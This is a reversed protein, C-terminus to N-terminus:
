PLTENGAGSVPRVTVHVDVSRPSDEPLRLSGPLILTREVTTETRISDLVVPATVLQERDNGEPILTTISDPTTTVDTLQLSDPVSGDTQAVVPVTRSQLPRTTVQIARPEASALQLQSPLDLTSEDVTLETPGPSSSRLSFAIALDSPDILQFAQEPGSVTVQATSTGGDLTWKDPVDHYEIPVDYSRYVTEPNYVFSVWLLASLGVALFASLVVTTTEWTHKGGSAGSYNTEWFQRLEDKLEAASDLTRLVGDRAVSITGREESVAIVLADCVESLGLAASHRTGGYQSESPLQEALPLHAAFALVSPGELLVAGDHGETDPDFISYLLPTSLMGNLEVGGTVYHDWPERGRIAVLAGTRNEALKDMSEVIVDIGSADTQPSPPSQGFLRTGANYVLRRLDSQFIVITALFAFLVLLQSIQEVMYMQFVRAPLYLGLFFITVAGIGRLASESLQRRLWWFAIFLLFAVLAIDVLDAIRLPWLM